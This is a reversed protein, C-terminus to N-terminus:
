PKAKKENLYENILDTIKKCTKEGLRTELATAQGEFMEENGERLLRRFANELSMGGKPM